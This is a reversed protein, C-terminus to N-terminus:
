AYLEPFNIRIAMNFPESCTEDDPTLSMLYILYNYFVDAGSKSIVGDKSVSSISSDLGVASLMAEDARKDYDILSSIYERYKLDVTEIKWCEEEAGNRFSITAYAKGQNDEGSLYASIKRLEFRMYALLSSEKYETGIEIDNYKLPEKGKAALRKNEECLLTIQNRKSVLWANPIIIHLKAALSNKLFSNIYGATQNSGKIYSKTGVHTENIGYYEGVSKERHHSIGAYKIRGSDSLTFRPYFKYNSIGYGWKGVAIYKLDNYNIIDNAVDTITTALRCHKNEMMELGVTRIPMGTLNGANLRWKVFYDRFYYFNKIIAKSFSKYDMELGRDTWDELWSMILPQEVWTKEKKGGATNQRYVAPGLGYLMNVQKNILRPLLRNNNFDSTIEEVQLNNAGRAAVNFGSINMWSLIGASSAGFEPDINFNFSNRAGGVQFSIVNNDDAYCGFNGILDFDNTM